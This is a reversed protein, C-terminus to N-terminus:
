PSAHKLHYPLATLLLLYADVLRHYQNEFNLLADHVSSSDPVLLKGNSKSFRHSKAFNTLDSSLVKLWGVIEECLRKESAAGPHSPHPHDSPRLGYLKLLTKLIGLDLHQWGLILHLLDSETLTRHLIVEASSPTQLKLPPDIKLAKSVYEVMGEMCNADEMLLGAAEQLSDKMERYPKQTNAKPSEHKTPKFHAADGIGLADLRLDLHTAWIVFDASTNALGDVIAKLQHEHPV